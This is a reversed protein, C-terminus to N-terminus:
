ALRQEDQAPQNLREVKSAQCHGYIGEHKRKELWELVAGKPYMIRARLKFYSPTDGSQRALRASQDSTFLGIDILNQVSCTEPLTNKLRKIFDDCASM